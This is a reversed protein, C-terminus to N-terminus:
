VSEDLQQPHTTLCRIVFGSNCERGSAFQRQAAIERVTPVNRFDGGVSGRSNYHKIVLSWLGEPQSLAAALDVVTSSNALAVRQCRCV